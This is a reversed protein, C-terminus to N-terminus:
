SIMSHQAYSSEPLERGNFDTLSLISIPWRGM